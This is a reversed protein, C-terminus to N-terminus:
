EGSLERGRATYELNEAVKQVALFKTLSGFGAPGKHEDSDGNIHM